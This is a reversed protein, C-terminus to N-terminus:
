KFRVEKCVAASSTNGFDGCVDMKRLTLNICLQREFSNEDCEDYKTSNVECLFALDGIEDLGKEELEESEINNFFSINSKM